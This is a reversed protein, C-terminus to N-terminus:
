KTFKSLCNQSQFFFNPQTHPFLFTSSPDLHRPSFRPLHLCSSYLSSNPFCSAELHPARSTLRQAGSRHGGESGKHLVGLHPHLSPQIVETPLTWLIAGDQSGFLTLFIPIGPPLLNRIMKAPEGSVAKFVCRKHTVVLWSLGVMQWKKKKM